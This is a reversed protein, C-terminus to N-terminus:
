RQGVGILHRVEDAGAFDTAAISERVTPEGYPGVGVDLPSHVSYYRGDVHVAHVRDTDVYLGAERDAVLADPEWSSWLRQAIDVFEAQREAITDTPSWGARGRSIKHLAILRRALSYPHDDSTDVQVTLRITDTRVAAAALVVIPDPAGVTGASLIVEPAGSREASVVAAVLDDARWGAVDIAIRRATM